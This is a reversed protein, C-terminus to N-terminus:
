GSWDSKNYKSTNLYKFFYESKFYPILFAYQSNKMLPYTM